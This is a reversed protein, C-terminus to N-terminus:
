HAVSQELSSIPVANSGTVAAEARRTRSRSRRGIRRGLRRHDYIQATAISAYGLWELVKAIDAEHDLAYTAATGKAFTGRDRGLAKSYTRVMKYIADASIAKQSRKVRGHHGGRFLAGPRRGHARRGGFLGACMRVCGPAATFVANTVKTQCKRTLWAGDSM